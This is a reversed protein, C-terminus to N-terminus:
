KQSARISEGSDAMNGRRARVARIIGERDLGIEALLLAQDGHEIFHDPIGLRLLRLRVPSKKSSANSRPVQAV